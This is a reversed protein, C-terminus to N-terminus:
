YNRQNYKQEQLVYNIDIRTQVNKYFSLLDDININQNKTSWRFATLKQAIAFTM